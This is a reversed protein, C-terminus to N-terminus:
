RIFTNKVRKSKKWYIFFIITLLISLLLTILDDFSWSAVIIYISYITAAIFSIMLLIKNFIIAKRCKKFILLLAILILVLAISYYIFEEIHLDPGSGSYPFPYVVLQTFIIINLLVFLLAFGLSIVYIMLWGGIGDIKEENTM